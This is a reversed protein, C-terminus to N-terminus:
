RRTWDAVTKEADERLDEAGERVDGIGERVDGKLQDYKGENEMQPDDIARGVTEKVTGKAQELKGEVQQKNDM